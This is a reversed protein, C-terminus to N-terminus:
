RLGKIYDILLDAYADLAKLVVEKYKAEDAKIVFTGTNRTNLSIGKKIEEPMAGQYTDIETAYNENYYLSKMLNITSTLKKETVLSFNSFVVKMRDAGNSQKISIQPMVDSSTKTNIFDYGPGYGDTKWRSAQIDFRAFDVVIDYSYVDAGGEKALKSYLGPTKLVNFRNYAMGNATKVKVQGILKGNDETKSATEVAKTYTKGNTFNDGAVTSIDDIREFKQQFSIAFEDAIEQLTEDSIGELVAWATVNERGQGKGLLVAGSTINKFHISGRVLGASASKKIPKDWGCAFDKKPNFDNFSAFAEGGRSQAFDQGSSQFGIGLVFLIISLKKM